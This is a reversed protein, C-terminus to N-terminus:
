AFLAFVYDHEVIKRAPMARCHGSLNRKVFAVDAISFQDRLNRAAMPKFGADV